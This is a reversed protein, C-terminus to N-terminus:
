ADSYVKHALPLNQPWKVPGQESRVPRKARVNEKVTVM